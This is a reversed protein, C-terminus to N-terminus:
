MQGPKKGQGLPDGALSPLALDNYKVTWVHLTNPLVVRCLKLRVSPLLEHPLPVNQSIRLPQNQRAQRM